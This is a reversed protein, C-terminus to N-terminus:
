CLPLSDMLVKEQFMRLVGEPKMAVPSRTTMPLDVDPDTPHALEMQVIVKDKHDPWFVLHKESHHENDSGSGYMYSRISPSPWYEREDAPAAPDYAPLQHCASTLCAPYSDSRFKRDAEDKNAATRSLIGHRGTPDLLPCGHPPITMELRVYQSNEKWYVLVVPMVWNDEGHALTVFQEPRGFRCRELTKTAPFLAMKMSASSECLRSAALYAKAAVTMVQQTDCHPLAAISELWEKRTKSAQDFWGLYLLSSHNTNGSVYNALNHDRVFEGTTDCVVILRSASGTRNRRGGYWTGMDAVSGDANHFICPTEGGKTNHLSRVGEPLTFPMYKDVLRKRYQTTTFSSQYFTYFKGQIEAAHIQFWTRGNVIILFWNAGYEHGYWKVDAGTLIKASGDGMLKDYEAPDKRHLAMAKRALWSYTIVTKAM